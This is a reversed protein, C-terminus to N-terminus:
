LARALAIGSWTGLLCGGVSLTINLLALKLNGESLYRFTDWSFTSFTTFSACFGVTLFLRVNPTFVGKEVNMTLVWAMVFSGILNIVLTGTAFTSGWKEVSWLGIVYRSWAGLIGGFAIWIFKDMKM